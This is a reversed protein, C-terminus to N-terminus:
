IVKSCSQYHSSNLGYKEMLQAPTGKALTDKTAIYEQPTITNLSLLGAISSGGLGGLHHIKV